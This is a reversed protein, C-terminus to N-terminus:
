FWFSKKFYTFSDLKSCIYNALRVLHKELLHYFLFGFLYLILISFVVRFKFLSFYLYNSAVLHIVAPHFLYIGFSYKGCNRFFKFKYFKVLPNNSSSTLLAMYLSISWIVAPRSRYRFISLKLINFKFILYLREIFNCINWQILSWWQM